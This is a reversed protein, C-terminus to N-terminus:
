NGFALAICALIMIFIFFLTIAMGGGTELFGQPEPDDPTTVINGTGKV